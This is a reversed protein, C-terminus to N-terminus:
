LEAAAVLLVMEESWINCISNCHKTDCQLIIGLYVM